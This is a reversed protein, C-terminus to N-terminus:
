HIKVIIFMVMIQLQINVLEPLKEVLKMQDLILEELFLIVQQLDLHEKLIM